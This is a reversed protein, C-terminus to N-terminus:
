AAESLSAAESVSAPAAGRSPTASLYRPVLRDVGRRRDLAALMAIVLDYSQYCDHMIMALTLLDEDDLVDTRTFDRVFVADAWVLQSLGAFIDGGIIAPAIVRSVPRHFRHFVFGHRRLFLDVDGFLPQNVYLPLFEVEAQIVLTRALRSTAHRLAMLEAGQIDMHLFRMGVTQPIDDLRVTRVDRTAVVRGWEPFGHFHNLVAMNPRLLSTMGPAQCVHLTHAEGDGIALPLYTECPGKRANLIALADPNPEFGVVDADGAALMAGYPPSGDIPNAGVDVVKARVRAGHLEDGLIDNLSGPQGVMAM